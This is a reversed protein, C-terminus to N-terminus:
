NRTPKLRGHQMGLTRVANRYEGWTSLSEKWMKHIKKGKLKDTFENSM